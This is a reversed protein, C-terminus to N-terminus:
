ENIFKIVGDGNDYIIDPDYMLEKNALFYFFKTENGVYSNFLHAEIKSYPFIIGKAKKNNRLSIFKDFDHYLILRFELRKFQGKYFNYKVSNNMSIIWELMYDDSASYHTWKNMLRTENSMKLIMFIASILILIFLIPYIFKKFGGHYTSVFTVIVYSVLTISFISFYALMRLELNNGLHSYRDILVMSSFQLLFGLYLFLLLITSSKKRDRSHILSKLIYLFSIFSAPIMILDFLRLVLFVIPNDYSKSVYTYQPFKESFAKEEELGQFMLGFKSSISRVASLYNSSPPYIFLMFYFCLILCIIIVYMMRKFSPKFLHLRNSGIGLLLSILLTFVVSSAFFINLSFLQFLFIYFLLISVRFERIRVPNFSRKLCILLCFFAMLFFREHSSRITIGFLESQISFLLAGLLAVVENNLFERVMLFFFLVIIFGSLPYFVMFLVTPDIGSLHIFM